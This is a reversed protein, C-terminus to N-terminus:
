QGDAARKTAGLDFYYAKQDRTVVLLRARTKALAVLVPESAIDFQSVLKMTTLDYAV